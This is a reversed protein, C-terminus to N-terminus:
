AEPWLYGVVAAAILIQVPSLVWLLVFAAIALVATRFWNRRTAYPALLLWGGGAIVGVVAAASGTVVAHGVPTAHWALYALTLAVVVFAAPVSLALVALAAGPWGRLRWGVAACFALVNTGPAIRAMAFSLSFEEPRLVGREDVLERRINAITASGSAWTSNVVRLFVWALAALSISPSNEGSL